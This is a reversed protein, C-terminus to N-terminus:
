YLMRELNNNKLYYDIYFIKVIKKLEEISTNEEIQTKESIDSLFKLLEERNMNEIEIMKTNFQDFNKVSPPSNNFSSLVEGVDNGDYKMFLFVINVTICVVAVVIYIFKNKM